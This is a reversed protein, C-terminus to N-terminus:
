PGIISSRGPLAQTNAALQEVDVLITKVNEVLQFVDIACGAKATGDCDGVDPSSYRRRRNSVHFRLRPKIRDVEAIQCIVLVPPEDRGPHPLGAAISRFNIPFLSQIGAIPRQTVPITRTTRENM